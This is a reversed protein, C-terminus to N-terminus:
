SERGVLASEFQCCVCEAHHPFPARTVQNPAAPSVTVTEQHLEPFAYRSCTVTEDVYAVRALPNVHKHPSCVHEKHVYNSFM